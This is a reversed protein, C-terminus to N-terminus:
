IQNAIFYINCTQKRLTFLFNNSSKATKVLIHVHNKLIDNFIFVSSSTTFLYLLKGLYQHVILIIM